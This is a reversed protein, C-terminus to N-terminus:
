RVLRLIENFVRNRSPITLRMNPKLDRPLLRLGNARAIVWWLDPTGYYTNSLNDIRDQAEVVRFGDDDAQAIEPLKTPTFFTHGDIQVLEAFRLRSLKKVSVSAM